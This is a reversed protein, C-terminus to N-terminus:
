AGTKGARPSWGYVSRGAKVCEPCLDRTDGYRRGRADVKQLHVDMRACRRCMWRDCTKGDELKGDCQLTALMNCFECYHVEPKPM